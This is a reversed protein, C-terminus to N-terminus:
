RDRMPGPWAGLALRFVDLTRAATARWDFRAAHARGRAVAAARAEPDSIMLWAGDAVEAADAANVQLAAGAFVEDLSSGRGCIVPCGCAMAELPPLGFGEYSSPFLLCEAGSYLAVLEEDALHEVRVTGPPDAVGSPGREGYVVFHLTADRARLRRFAAAAVDYRKYPERDGASLVFRQVGLKRRAAEVAEPSAPAFRESVGLHIVDARERVSPVIGLLDRRTSESICIVRAARTVARELVREAIAVKARGFLQPFQFHILDLVTVVFPRPATFPVAYHPFHYLDAGAARMARGGLLQESASYLGASYPLHHADLATAAAQAAPGGALTLRVGPACAHLARYLESQYRGLGTRGWRRADLALSFTDTSSPHTVSM